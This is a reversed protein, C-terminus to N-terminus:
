SRREDVCAGVAAYADLAGDLAVELGAVVSESVLIRGSAIEELVHLIATVASDRRAVEDTFRRSTGAKSASHRLHM